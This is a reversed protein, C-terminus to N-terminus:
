EKDKMRRRATAIDREQSSKDGAALLVVVVDGIWSYYIRYGPGTSSDRLEYLGEGLSRCHPLKLDRKLERLFIFLKDIKERGTEDLAAIWDKVPKEGRRSVWCKISLLSATGTAPEKGGTKRRRWKGGAMGVARVSMM